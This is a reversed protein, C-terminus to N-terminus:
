LLRLACAATFRVARKFRAFMVEDTQQLGPDEKEEAKQQEANNGAVESIWDIRFYVPCLLLLCRRMEAFLQTSQVANWSLVVEAAREYIKAHM